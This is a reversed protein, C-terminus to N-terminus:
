AAIDRMEETVQVALERTPVLVLASPRKESPEISQILPISFGLTKGSGTRSKALVDRGALADKLVLGQIKLPATISRRALAKYIPACVGLEAFSSMYDVGETETIGSGILPLNTSGTVM